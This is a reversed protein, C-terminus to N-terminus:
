RYLAHKKIYTYVSPSVYYRFPRDEKIRQRIQRSSIGLLPADMFSVKESLGPFIMELKDLNIFDGPRRMVGISHCAQVFEHHKHWTPLDRLSDGGMIYVLEASPEQAALIELTDVAYHPGPRDIDLRSLEFDPNNAISLELMALRHSLSTLPQNSKHPPDPTLLWLLRDLNLFNSAEGALILHGIHPPDFTGGFIGIRTNL